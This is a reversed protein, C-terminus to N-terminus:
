GERVGLSTGMLIGMMKRGAEKAAAQSFAARCHSGAMARSTSVSFVVGWIVSLECKFPRENKYSPSPLILTTKVLDCVVSSLCNQLKTLVKRKKDGMGM